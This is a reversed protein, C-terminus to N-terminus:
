NRVPPCDWANRKGFRYILGVSLSYYHDKQNPNAAISFGDVYDSFTHRYNLEGNLMLSPSIAYRLGAGVPIVPLLRPTRNQLDEAIRAPLNEQLGFKSPDFGSADRRVRLYSLGVGAFVYPSIRPGQEVWGSPSWMIQPSLEILPTKFNLNRFQRFAPTNYKGDDGRLSAISLNVRMAYNNNIKKTGHLLLGPRVTKYSGFRQPTLDGQYIFAGIAAGVEYNSSKKQASASICVFGILMSICLSRVYSNM